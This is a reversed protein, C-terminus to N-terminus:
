NHEHEHTSEKETSPEKLAQIYNVLYWVEIEELEEDWAPMEGRGNKIKWAFDGDPHEGAMAKLDTPKVSLGSADPGNGRALEGHCRSCLDAFLKAGESISNSDPPVPNVQKAAEHPAAWHGGDMHHGGEHSGSACAMSVVGLLATALLLVNKM